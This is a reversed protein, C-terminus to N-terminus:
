RLLEASGVICGPWGGAAVSWMRCLNEYFSGRFRSNNRDRVRISQPIRRCRAFGSRTFRPSSGDATLPCRHPRVARSPSPSQRSSRSWRAEVPEAAPGVAPEDSLALNKTAACRRAGFKGRSPGRWSKVLKTSSHPGATPRSAASRSPVPQGPRSTAALCGGTSPMGKRVATQNVWAVPAPHNIPGSPASRESQVAQCGHPIWTRGQTSTQKVSRAKLSHTAISLPPRTRYSPTEPLGVKSLEAAPRGGDGGPM